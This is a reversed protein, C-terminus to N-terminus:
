SYLIGGAEHMTISSASAAFGRLTDGARMTPLDVDLSKGAAISEAFLFANAEASPVAAAASYLTVAVAGATTNTLRVRGNKLVTTAPTSPVTYLVGAAAPLVQPTFLQSITLAM